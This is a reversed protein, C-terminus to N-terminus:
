KLSIQYQLVVMGKADKQKLTTADFIPRYQYGLSIKNSHKGNVMFNINFDYVTMNQQLADWDSHQISINPQIIMEQGLVKAQEFAYGFQMYLSAGTGIMPFAVGAGNFDDGGGSTVNNAGVNRIYDTGFGYYYYGLYATIADKNALPLNLYSDVAWHKMDYFNTEIVNADGDSMAKEQTQFGAGIHFVKKNQMYTGVQYASKNSEHEFFQYKVYAGIKTRPRNNAFDVKGTSPIVTVVEPNNFTLRYDFRGAQGKFWVGYQRGLDDNKEVTNLSFLPSDLGMMNASSRINWRNLGQWGSKGLGVELAKSFSYEVYFDLIGVKMEKNKINYNNGGLLASMYIKPTVQSSIPIRLRRLSIDTYRSTPEENVLSGENLDSYRLWIQGRVNWKIKPTFVEKEQGIGLLPSAMMCGLFFIRFGKM